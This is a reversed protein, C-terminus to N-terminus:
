GRRLRRRVPLLAGPRADAVARALPAAGGTLWLALGTMTVIEGVTFFTIFALPSMGTLYAKRYPIYM